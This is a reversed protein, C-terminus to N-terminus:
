RAQESDGFGELSAKMTALANWAHTKELYERGRDVKESGIFCAMVEASPESM